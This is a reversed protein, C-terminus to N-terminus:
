KWRRTVMEKIMILREEFQHIKSDPICSLCKGGGSASIDDGKECIGLGGAEEEVEKGNLM